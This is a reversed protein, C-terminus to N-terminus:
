APHPPHPLELPADPPPKVAEGPIGRIRASGPPRHSSSAGGGPGPAARRSLRGGGERGLAAASRGSGAGGGGNMGLAPLLRSSEPWRRREESSRVPRFAGLSAGSQVRRLPASRKAAGSPAGARRSPQNASPSVPPGVWRAKGARTAPSRLRLSGHSELALQASPIRPSKWAGGRKLSQSDTAPATSLFEKLEPM